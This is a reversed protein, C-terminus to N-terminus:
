RIEAGPVGCRISRLPIYTNQFNRLFSASAELRSFARQGRTLGGRHERRHEVYHSDLTRLSAVLDPIVASASCAHAWARIDAHSLTQKGAEIKSVKSPSWRCLEALRRGTLEADKRLERLRQGLAEREQQYATM